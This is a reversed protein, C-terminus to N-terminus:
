DYRGKYAQSKVKKADSVMRKDTRKMYENAMGNVKGAFQDQGPQYDHNEKGMKGEGSGNYKM